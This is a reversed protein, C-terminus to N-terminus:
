GQWPEDQAQNYQLMNAQRAIRLAEQEGVPWNAM